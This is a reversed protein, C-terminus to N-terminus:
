ISVITFGATVRLLAGSDLPRPSPFRVASVLTGTTAGKTPSSSIFGGQALTGNITGTFEGRAASNDVAGAATTGLTLARRTTESYAVLETAATPFTAMTDAPVPTYAGSFLGIYFGAHPTGNKLATNIIYNLGEIPVLNYTTDKDILEGYKNFLELEWRFGAALTHNSYKLPIM